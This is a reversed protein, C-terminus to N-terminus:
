RAGRKKAPAVPAPPPEVSQYQEPPIIAYTELRATITGAKTDKGRQPTIDLTRVYVLKPFTRLTDLLHMLTVYNGHVELNIQQVRYKATELELKKSKKVVKKVPRKGSIKKPGTDAEAAALPNSQIDLPRLESPQIRVIENHTATAADQLQKLYTPIYQYEVLGSDITALKNLLVKQETEFVGQKAVENDISTLEADMGKLKQDMASITLNQRHWGFLGAALVLVGIAILILLKVTFASQQMNM